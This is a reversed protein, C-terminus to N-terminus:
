LTAFLHSPHVIAGIELDSLFNRNLLGPEDFLKSMFVVIDIILFGGQLFGSFAKFLIPPPVVTGHLRHRGWVRGVRAANHFPM